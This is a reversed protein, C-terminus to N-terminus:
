SGFGGTIRQIHDVELQTEVDETVADMGNGVLALVALGMGVLAATLAVWDVTVAGGEHVLFRRVAVSAPPM